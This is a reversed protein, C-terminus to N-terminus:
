AVPELTTAPTAPEDAAAQAAAETGPSPSALALGLRGLSEQARSRAAVPVGITARGITTGDVVEITAALLSVPAGLEAGLRAPWDGPVTASAYVLELATDGTAPAAAARPPQLDRGLRSGPDQLLDVVHGSETFRGHELRAVTDAVQRVVDMEHTILLVSLDLEDRLTSLLRLISTTSDPDLGSTAEDALLVRPRLALARAIGVRQRQGGSLEHPYAAARDGLGVRDLLEAVRREKDAKTVGLYELPLAVNQAATRRSFLGDTQFVTGIRRRADRLGTEDARTLDVGDVEVSGSTPRELLAIAAALTSKGAGSAGVVAAIEGREVVLDLRDLVTTTRGARAFTKTLQHIRIM